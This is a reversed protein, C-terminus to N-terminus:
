RLAFGEPLALGFEESWGAGGALIARIELASVSTGEPVLMHADRRECDDIYRELPGFVEPDGAIMDFLKASSSCGYAELALIVTKRREAPVDALRDLLAGGWKAMRCYRQTVRRVTEGDPFAGTGCLFAVHQMALHKVRIKDGAFIREGKLIGDITGAAEKAQEM